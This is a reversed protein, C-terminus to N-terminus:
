LLILVIASLIFCIGLQLGGVLSTGFNDLKLTKFLSSILVIMDFNPNFCHSYSVKGIEIIHCHSGITWSCRRDIILVESLDPWKGCVQFCASTLGIM